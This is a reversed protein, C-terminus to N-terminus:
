DGKDSKIYIADLIKEVSNLEIMEDLSFRVSFDDQVVELLTIQASSDWEDIDNVDTSLSITLDEKDFVNKFIKELRKMMETKDM